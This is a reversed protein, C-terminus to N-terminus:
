SFSGVAAGTPFVIRRDFFPDLGDQNTPRFAGSAALDAPLFRTGQLDVESSAMMATTTRMGIRVQRGDGRVPRVQVSAM